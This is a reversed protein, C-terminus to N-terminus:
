RKGVVTMANMVADYITQQEQENLNITQGNVDLFMQHIEEKLIDWDISDGLISGYTTKLSDIYDEMQLDTRGAMIEKSIMGSVFKAPDELDGQMALLLAQSNDLLKDFKNSIEELQDDVNELMAERARERLEKLREEELEELKQELEKTQKQSNMDSSSGLKSLNSVLLNSQEEYEEDAEERDISEFYKEYAEKRKNLSDELAERQDELYNRYEDLQKQEQELRVELSAKFLNETDNLYEQYRKLEQIYAENRDKGKKAEEILLEQEIEKRRRNIQEQLAANNELAERIADHDGSEFAALLKGDSFLEANDQIFEARDSESMTEWELAKEYFNNISNKIKDMNQGMNLVGVQVLDGYASIFANLTKETGDLYDGFVIETAKLVDGQTATLMNLYDTFRSEWVEKTIDVGQKRLDEWAGNLKNLEDISLGTSDIFDLVGDGLKAFYDYQSFNEMFADLAAQDGAEELAQLTEKYAKVQDKLSFDDSTLVQAVNLNELKGELNTVEVELNQITQVLNKMKEGTDDNAYAWAEEVSMEELISQTLSEIASSQSQTLTGEQKLLDLREYLTNNNIAYIADQTKRYEANTTDENFMAKREDDSLGRIINIQEKRKDNAKNRNNQEITELAKRKGENTSFSEYYAKESVGKGYGIDEDEGIEDSLKDAAQDLLSNMEKLDTNTKILKSDLSDFSDAIESIANAKETIKYIESSLKNIEESESVEEPQKFAGMSAAIGIGALATIGALLATAAIPGAIPGLTAAAKAYLKAILLPIGKLEEMNQKKTLVGILSMIPPIAKFALGIATMIGLWTTSGTVLSMVGGGVMAVNSGIDVWSSSTKEGLSFLESRLSIEETQLQNLEAQLVSESKSLDSEAQKQLLAAQEDSIEGEKLKTKIKEINLNFKEIEGLKKANIVEKKAAIQAQKDYLAKKKESILKLRNETQLAKEYALEQMKNGLIQSGVVAVTTLTAVIGWDTGLFDGIKDLVDGVGGFFDIIVESETLNMVIKEWAVQINNLSAEMGELYTAAQAATAGASRSSIEQLETVREYDEMMAILRSQQRTGALAKAIAAQQNKNLTDWKKGLEDLVDETSRLEGQQDRLAIGVYSLQSEVNNIDTGDELTEGYDGLERMRAIITKLATGMTEPAERTTELGKTLLATTYDISMGALNAQSAVKSLAIALEDYDTASAAAIAAFKDSVAMAQDAELRFGNLATTLYNVSDGVSVRAVKAASVAAETLILSEQITKGQKMYETAVQAIEKTTAGCQLALDQYAGVLEYTQKRTLGTVMAQETLYKDLEKVTQVAEQAAQKAMRLAMKYLALQKVMKGLSQNNKGIDQVDVGESAGTRDTKNIKEENTAETIKQNTQDGIKSIEAYLKSISDAGQNASESMRNLEVTLNAYNQTEIDIQENTDALDAKVESEYNNEAKVYRNAAFMATRSGFTLGSSTKIDNKLNENTVKSIVTGTNKLFEALTKQLEIIENRTALKGSGTIVKKADPNTKAFDKAANATIRKENETLKSKLNTRKDKLRNIEQNLAAQRDTLKKVEESVKGTTSAAEKFLKMLGNFNKQFTKLDGTELALQAGKTYKDLRETQGKDLKLGKTSEVVKNLNSTLEVQLQVKEAM